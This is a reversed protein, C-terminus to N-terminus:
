DGAGADADEDREPDVPPRWDVLLTAEDEDQEVVVIQLGEPARAILADVVSPATRSAEVSLVARGHTFEAPVVARVGRDDRLADRLLGLPTYGTLGEVTITLTRAVRGTGAVDLGLSALREGVADVDVTVDALVVYEEEVDPDSAFMAPRRGRDELIRFRSVYAFPDDGLRDALWADPKEPLGDEDVGAGPPAFDSPLLAKATRVVAGRVAERMAADRPVGEGAVIPAVGVSQERRTEAGVPAGPGVVLALAALAGIRAVRPIRM